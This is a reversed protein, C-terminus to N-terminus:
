KLTLRFVTGANHAGGASTMGYLADDSGQILGGSPCRGDGTGGLGFLYHLSAAGSLSIKFVTGNNNDGCSTVGYLNGDSAQVLNGAPTNSVSDFDYLTSVTGGLSMRFVTGRDNAGGRSTMGYLNGDSAQVLGKDGGSSAGIAAFSYLQTLTGSTTIRFITGYGFAGGGTTTGYLNGDSARILSTTPGAGDNAVGGFSYLVTTAGSTTVVRFVTGRSYTGGGSTTGYLNGDAAQVLGGLPDGGGADRAFSRLVAYAGSLSIRFVTGFDSLGGWRTTGYLNGDSAQILGGNPEFGDGTRVSFSGTFSHLVTLAGAPTLRFITGRNSAGGLSTTGYFNGDSARILSGEPGSGDGSGGAFSHLATEAVSSPACLVRVNAVNGFPMSGTGNAVLCSLGAPQTLVAINYVSGIAVPTPMTFSTAGAPVPLADTGGALVLGGATLGSITGGVSRTTVREVKGPEQLLRKEPTTPFTMVTGDDLLGFSSLNLSGVYVLRRGAPLAVKTATLIVGPNPDTEAVFFAGWAIAEGARTMAICQLYGGCSIQAM